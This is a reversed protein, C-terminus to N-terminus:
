GFANFLQRLLWFGVYGVPTCAVTFGMLGIVFAQWGTVSQARVWMVTVVGTLILLAFADTTNM